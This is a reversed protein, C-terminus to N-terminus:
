NAESIYYLFDHTFGGDTDSFVKIDEEKTALYLPYEDKSNYKTTLYLIEKNCYFEIGSTIYLGGDLDSQSITFPSGDAEFSLQPPTPNRNDDTGDHILLALRGLCKLLKAENFLDRPAVRTYSM